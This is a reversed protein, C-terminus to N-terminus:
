SARGRRRGRLALLGIGGLLLVATTPEPVTLVSLVPRHDSTDADAIVEQSELQFTWAGPRYGIFDIRDTPLDAPYTAPTTGTLTFATQLTNIPASGPVDNFDGAILMPHTNQQGAITNIQEVQASRTAESYRDLHTGAFIMQLDGPLSILATALVRQERPTGPGLTLPVVTTNSMAFKSLLAIGYEGGQYDIAKAFFYHMGLQDAIIQAQNGPGSRTTNVDIEQLAVLDPNASQITTVVSSLDIVGPSAPPNGHHINFSMVRLPAAQAAPIPVLFLLIATVLLPFLGPVLPSKKM